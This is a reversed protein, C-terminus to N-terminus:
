PRVMAKVSILYYVLLKM